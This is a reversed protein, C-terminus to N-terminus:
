NPATKLNAAPVRILLPPSIVPFFKGIRKKRCYIIIARINTTIYDFHIAIIKLDYIRYKQQM